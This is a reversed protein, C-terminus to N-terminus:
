CSIRMCLMSALSVCTGALHQFMYDVLPMPENQPVMKARAEDSVIKGRYIGDILQSATLTSVIIM